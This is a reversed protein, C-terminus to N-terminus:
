EAAHPRSKSDQWGSWKFNPSQSCVPPYGDTRNQIILLRQLSKTSNAMKKGLFKAKLSNNASYGIQIM